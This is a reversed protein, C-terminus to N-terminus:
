DFSLLLQLFYYMRKVLLQPTFFLHEYKLLIQKSQLPGCEIQLRIYIYYSSLACKWTLNVGAKSTEWVTQLRFHLRNYSQILSIGEGPFDFCQRSGCDNVHSSSKHTQGISCGTSQYFKGKPWPKSSIYIHIDAQSNTGDHIWRHWSRSFM